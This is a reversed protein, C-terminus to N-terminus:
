HSDPVDRRSPKRHPRDIAWRMIRDNRITANAGVKVIVRAEHLAYFREGNLLEDLFKGNL